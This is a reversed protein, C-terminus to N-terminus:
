RCRGQEHMSGCARSDSAHGRHGTQRGWATPLSVSGSVDWQPHRRRSARRGGDVEHLWNNINIRVAFDFALFPDLFAAKPGDVTGSKAALVFIARARTSKHKERVRSLEMPIDSGQSSNYQDARAPYDFVLYSRGHLWSPLDGEVLVGM